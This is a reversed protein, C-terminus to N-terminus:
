GMGWLCVPAVRVDLRLAVVAAAGAGNAARVGHGARKHPAAQGHPLAHHLLLRQPHTGHPSIAGM